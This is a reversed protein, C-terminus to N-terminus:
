LAGYLTGSVWGNVYGTTVVTPAQRERLVRGDGGSRSGGVRQRLHADDAGPGQAEAGAADPDDVHVTRIASVTQGAANWAIYQVSYSGEAATNPGLGFADQRRTTGTCRWRDQRVRGWAQAGPDVYAPGGCELTMVSDGNLTLSPQGAELVQVTRPGAEAVNGSADSGVRYSVAYTGPQSVPEAGAGPGPEDPGRLVCGHGGSGHVPPEGCGLVLPEAGVLELVPAQTDRVAM